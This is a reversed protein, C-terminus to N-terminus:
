EEDEITYRKHLDDLGYWRKVTIDRTAFYNVGVEMAYWGRAPRTAGTLKKLEENSQGLYLITDGASPDSPRIIMHNEDLLFEEGDEMYIYKGDVLAVNNIDKIELWKASTAILKHCERVEKSYNFLAINHDLLERQIASSKSPNTEIYTKLSKILKIFARLTYDKCIQSKYKALTKYFEKAATDTAISQVSGKTKSDCLMFTVLKASRNDGVEFIPNM